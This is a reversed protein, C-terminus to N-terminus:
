ILSLERISQCEDSYETRIYNDLLNLDFDVPGNENLLMINKRRPIEGFSLKNASSLNGQYASYYIGDTDYTKIWYIGDDFHIYRPGWIINHKTQGDFYYILRIPGIMRMLYRYLLVYLCYISLIVKYIM